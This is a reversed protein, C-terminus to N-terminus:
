VEQKIINKRGIKMEVEQVDDRHTLGLWEDSTQIIDVPIGEQAALQFITPMYCEQDLSKVSDKQCFENWNKEVIPYISLGLALLNMNALRNKPANSFNLQKMEEISEFKGDPTLTIVGRSVEGRHSLAKHLQYAVIANRGKGAAEVASALAQKGYYDDANVVVAPTSSLTHVALKIAHGTGWPKTRDVPPKIGKPLSTLEQFVLSIEFPRRFLKNLILERFEAEIAKRIVFVIKRIGLEEADDLTYELITQKKYGIPLLQKLGGFRSGMGAALVVLSASRQSPRNNSM